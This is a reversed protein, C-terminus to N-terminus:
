YRPKDKVEAYYAELGIERIRYNIKLWRQKLNDDFGTKDCPFKTCQYCYNIGNDKYCDKVKCDKFLHCEQRRCGQCNYGFFQGALLGADEFLHLFGDLVTKM